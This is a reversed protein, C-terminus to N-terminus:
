AEGGYECDGDWSEGGCADCDGHCAPAYMWHHQWPGHLPPLLPLPFLDPRTRIAEGMLHMVEMMGVGEPLTAHALHMAELPDVGDDIARRLTNVYLDLDVQALLETNM